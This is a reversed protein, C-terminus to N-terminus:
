HSNRIRRGSDIELPLQYGHLLGDTIKTKVREPNMRCFTHFNPFSCQVRRQSKSDVKPRVQLFGMKRNLAQAGDKYSQRVEASPEGHPIAKVSAVYSQLEDKTATGFLLARSETLDVQYIEKLKKKDGDQQYFLVTLLIPTGAAEDWIRLIDGMDVSKQGAAKISINMPEKTNKDAPIDHARTYPLSSPELGYAKLVENEFTFGHRQSEAMKESHLRISGFPASHLRISGFPASHLRISGFPPSHLLTHNYNLNLKLLVLFTTNQNIRPARRPLKSPTV